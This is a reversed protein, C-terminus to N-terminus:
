SVAPDKMEMKEKRVLDPQVFPWENIRAERERLRAVLLSGGAVQRGNKENLYSAQLLGAQFVDVPDFSDPRGRLPEGPSALGGILPQILTPTEIAHKAYATATMKCHRKSWGGLAIETRLLHMPLGARDAAKLYGPWLQDITAGMDAALREITFDARFSAQIALEYLKLFFQASGRTALLMNHQPILLLKAGASHRGSQADEALTDVGVLLREPNLLVNLVSM